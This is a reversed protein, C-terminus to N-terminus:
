GRDAHAGIGGVGAPEEGAPTGTGTPASPVVLSGEIIEQRYHELAAITDISLHGGTTSYGVAKDALGLM